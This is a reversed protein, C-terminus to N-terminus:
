HQRARPLIFDRLERLWSKDSETNRDTNVIQVYDKTTPNEVMLLEQLNAMCATISFPKKDFEPIPSSCISIFNLPHHQDETHVTVVLIRTVQYSDTEPCGDKKRAPVNINEPFKHGLSHLHLSLGGLDDQMFHKMDSVLQFCNSVLYKPVRKRIGKEVYEVEGKSDGEQHYSVHFGKIVESNSTAHLSISCLLLTFAILSTNM